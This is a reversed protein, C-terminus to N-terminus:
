NIIELSVEGHALEQIPISQEGKDSSVFRLIRPVNLTRKRVGGGVKKKTFVLCWFRVDCVGSIGHVALSGFAVEGGDNGNEGRGVVEIHIVVSASDEFVRVLIDRNPLVIRRRV